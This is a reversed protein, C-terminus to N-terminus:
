NEFYWLFLLCLRERRPTPQTQKHYPYKATGRNWILIGVGKKTVM